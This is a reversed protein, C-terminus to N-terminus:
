RTAARRKPGYRLLYVGFLISGASITDLILGGTNMVDPELLMDSSFTELLGATLIGILLGVFLWTKGFPTYGHRELTESNARQVWDIFFGEFLFGIGFSIILTDSTIWVTMNGVHYMQYLLM